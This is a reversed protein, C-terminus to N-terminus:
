AVSINARRLMYVSGIADIKKETLLRLRLEPGVINIKVKDADIGTAAVFSGAM